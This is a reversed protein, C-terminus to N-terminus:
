IAGFVTPGATECLCPYAYRRGLFSNLTLSKAKRDEPLSKTYVSEKRCPFGM